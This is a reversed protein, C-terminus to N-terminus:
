RRRRPCPAAELASPLMNANYQCGRSRVILEMASAADQSLTISTDGNAVAFISSWHLSDGSTLRQLTIGPITARLGRFVPDLGPRQIPSPHRNPVRAYRFLRPRCTTISM